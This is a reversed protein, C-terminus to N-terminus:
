ADLGQRLIKDTVTGLFNMVKIGNEHITQKSDHLIHGLNKRLAHSKKCQM